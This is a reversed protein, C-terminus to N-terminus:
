PEATNDTEIIIRQLEQKSPPEVFKRGNIWITRQCSPPPRSSLLRSLLQMNAVLMHGNCFGPAYRTVTGNKNRKEHKDREEPWKKQFEIITVSETLSKRRIHENTM